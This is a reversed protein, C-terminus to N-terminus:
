STSSNSSGVAACEVASRIPPEPDAHVCPFAGPSVAPRAAVPTTSPAAMTHVDGTGNASAPSEALRNWAGVRAWGVQDQRARRFRYTALRVPPGASGGHESASSCLRNLARGATPPRGEPSSTLPCRRNVHTKGSLARRSGSRCAPKSPRRRRLYEAATSRDSVQSGSDRQRSIAIADQATECIGAIARSRGAKVPRTRVDVGIRDSISARTLPASSTTAHLTPWSCVFRRRSSCSRATMSSSRPFVDWRIVCEISSPRANRRRSSSLSAAPMLRPWCGCFAARVHARCTSFVCCRTRTDWGPEHPMTLADPAHIPTPRRPRPVDSKVVPMRGTAFRVDVFNPEPGRELDPKTEERAWRPPSGLAPSSRCPLKPPSRLAGATSDRGVPGSSRLIDGYM